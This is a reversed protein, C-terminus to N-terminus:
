ADPTIGHQKGRHLHIIPDLQLERMYNCLLASSTTGDVDADVIILIRSGQTAHKIFTDVAKDVNNLLSYHSEAVNPNLMQNVGEIGRNALVTEIAQGQMQNNLNYKM